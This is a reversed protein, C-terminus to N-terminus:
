FQSLCKKLSEQWHPIEIAFDKKIKTKDLVSYFPRSAKTPYDCSPIPNIKCKVNSGEIIALAFDYWSCVGENSFHYVEKIHANSNIASQEHSNSTLKNIVAVIAQALDDALTPTGIQDYVVNLESRTTALRKITKVFNNGYNSYLWSTRIVIANQEANNLLEQEGLLKTRGYVSTPNPTDSPTLPKYATGDFVYDTSIHVINKAGSLALNKPGLVNIKTAQEVEDEAKDVATYAACNIIFDIKNTEVYAKVADTDTIDLADVVRNPEKSACIDTLKTKSADLLKSLCQGLQGNAGTILFM